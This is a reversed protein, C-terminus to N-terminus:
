SEEEMKDFFFFFFDFNPNRWNGFFFFFDRIYRHYFNSGVVLSQVYRHCTTCHSHMFCNCMNDKAILCLFIVCM